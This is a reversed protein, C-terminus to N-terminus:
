VTTEDKDRYKDVLYSNIESDSLGGGEYDPHKRPGRKIQQYLEDIESASVSSARSQARKSMFFEHSPNVYIRPNEHKVNEYFQPEETLTSMNPSNERRVHSPVVVEGSEPPLVVVKEPSKQDLISDSIAESSYELTCQQSVSRMNNERISSKNSSNNQKKKANRVPKDDKRRSRDSNLILKEVPINLANLDDCSDSLINPNRHKQSKKPVNEVHINTNNVKSNTAYINTDVSSNDKHKPKPCSLVSGNDSNLDVRRAALNNRKMMNRKQKKFFKRAVTSQHPNYFMEASHTPNEILNPVVTTNRYQQRHLVVLNVNNIKTGSPETMSTTNLDAAAKLVNSNHSVSKTQASSRSSSRSIIHVDSITTPVQPLPQIQIQAMNQSTDSVNRSRFCFGKRKVWRSTLVWQTRVDNRAICYFFITFIGLLSSLIAYLVSFIDEEFPVVKFPKVTALACSIWAFVYIFLFKVYAKLQAMPAHEPDEVESSATKSSVSRVSRSDVHPFNPELLDLDVNETAQTGESLHGNADTSYIACRILLFFVGLFVVLIAFPIYLASLAPASSLFCRAHASYEKMNVAGSIGCVILAVGWGVLYLGLIPKQIPEDSPLEDDQLEIVDNKRLRKYMSNVGVCMWLLSSLTLYHLSIGVVKCVRVDETQYIGFVYMFCLLSIAVWTNVLSHKTKKPMQIAPYAFLYSLISFLLCVFLVFTGVYIAPHSFRFKAGTQKHVARSTDQLLGYYGLQKCSFVLNDRIEHSIQCGESSWGGRGGDLAPNWWVPTPPILDYLYKLEPKLMVYVPETLNSVTVNGLKVGVVSSTVEHGEKELKPFFKSSSFMTVLLTLPVKDLVVDQEQLQYFLSPPIQVSAEVDREQSVSTASPNYTVCHFLKDDEDLSNLYWTCTMGTFSDRKLIFQELAVHNRHLLPSPTFNVIREIAAVMKGCSRDEVDADLLYEEGLDMFNNLVDILLGGLEQEFSLYEIYNEITRAAYVLDMIDKMVKLDATYNKFHKASELISGKALSLNVKSFQELIKTTDSIYPCKTTNLNEWYGKTSCFYNAKQQSVESTLQISECPLAVSNNVVTRPWIYNGKNNVTTTIPCYKTENSIVVVSIGRSHNGRQSILQCNWDGSHNRNLKAISLSSDILGSDALYRNQIDVDFFHHRPNSDLWMWEIRDKAESDFMDFSDTSSPARCQLRLSDGEFVVQGHDPILEVIPMERNTAPSKCHIEVGVKLKRLPKGYFTQPTECKPNSMLKVSLKDAWDLLWLLACDCKLPNNSIDLQKLKMFPNFTGKEISTIQNQNLKLRELHKLNAFALTDIHKISNGSLDLRHLNPIESFQNNQLTTLQNRSLDLKQLAIFQVKPTFTTLYNSSLNLQVVENAINLFDDDEIYTLRETDGCRIKVWDSGDRQPSRKCSCKSPCDEPCVSVICLYLFLVVYKSIIREM